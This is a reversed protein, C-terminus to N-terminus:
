YLVWPFMCGHADSIHLFIVRVGTWQLGDDSTALLITNATNSNGVFALHPDSGDRESNVDGDGDRFLM